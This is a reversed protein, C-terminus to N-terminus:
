WRSLRTALVFLLGVVFVLVGPEVITLATEVLGAPPTGTGPSSAVLPDVAPSLVSRAATVGGHVVVTALALVALTGLDSALSDRSSEEDPGLVVCSDTAGWVTMERGKESYRMGVPEILGADELNSVHHAVNQVSTEVDSTIASSTAPDELIRRYIRRSTGSGLADLVDDSEDSGLAVFRPTQDDDTRTVTRTIRTLPSSM